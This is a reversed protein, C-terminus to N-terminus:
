LVSFHSGRGPLIFIIIAHHKCQGHAREIHALSSAVAAFCIAMSMAHVCGKCRKDQPNCKSLHVNVNCPVIVTPSKGLRRRYSFDLYGLLRVHLSDNGRQEQQQQQARMTIVMLANTRLMVNHQM